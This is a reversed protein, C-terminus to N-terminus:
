IPKKFSENQQYSPPKTAQYHLLKTLEKHQVKATTLLKPVQTQLERRTLTGEDLQKNIRQLLRSFHQLSMNKDIDSILYKNFHCPKKHNRRSEQNSRSKYTNRTDQRTRIDNKPWLVSEPNLRTQNTKSPSKKRGQHQQHYHKYQNNYFNHTVRTQTMM